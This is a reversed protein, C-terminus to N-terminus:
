LFRRWHSCDWGMLRELRRIDSAFIRRLVFALAKPIPADYRRTHVREPPPVHAEDVGLFRCVRVLTDGHQEKLEESRLILCNERPFCDFLRELQRAYFGRQVYSHVPHRPQSRSLKWEHLLAKLFPRSETDRQYEMAWQSYARAVPDRLLVIIKMDPNYAHIRPHIDPDFVYIPTIDGVAKCALADPDYLQHYAQYSGPKVRLIRRDFFHTEPIDPRSLGIEPHQELFHRLARTGGKQVGAVVFNVLPNAPPNVRPRDAPDAPAKTAPMTM